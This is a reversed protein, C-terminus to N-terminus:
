YACGIGELPTEREEVVARLHEPVLHTYKMTTALDAHGVYKSVLQVPVGDALKRTIFSHRIDHARLRHLRATKAASKFQRYISRLKDGPSASHHTKLHKFLWPSGPSGFRYLAAHNELAQMAIASLPVTRSRRGKTKRGNGPENFFTVVKQQFDADSWKLQLLEASRAGTEWALTVFLQLMPQASCALRLAHFESESLLVPERPDHRLAETGDVPNSQILLWPRVCLQFVRHLNTRYLNVTRPSVGESRKRDLLTQIEGPTVHQVYPDHLSQSSFWKRAQRVVDMMRKRASPRLKSAYEREYRNFVESMRVVEPLGALGRNLRDELERARKQAVRRATPKDHTRCSFRFRRNKLYVLAQWNRSEGSRKYLHIHAM